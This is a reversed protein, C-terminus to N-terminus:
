IKGINSSVKKIFSLSMIGIKIKLKIRKVDDLSVNRWYKISLKQQYSLSM